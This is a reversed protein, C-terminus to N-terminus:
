YPGFKPCSKMIAQFRGAPFPPHANKSHPLSFRRNPAGCPTPRLRRSSAPLAASGASRGTPTVSRCACRACAPREPAPWRVSRRKRWAARAVRWSTGTMATCPPQPPRNWFSHTVTKALRSTRQASSISARPATPSSTAAPATKIYVCSDLHDIIRTLQATDHRLAASRLEAAALESRMKHMADKAKRRLAAFTFAGFLYLAGLVSGGAILLNQHRTSRVSRKESFIFDDLPRPEPAFGLEVFTRMMTQWREPNQHGLGILRPQILEESAQAEELLGLREPRQARRSPLAAILSVIEAPNALAYEWGKLSAQRFRRVTEANEAAYDQATFLADGYFDVGYDRPHLLALEEASARRYRPVDSLYASMAVVNPQRLDDLSGSTPVLRVIPSAESGKVTIGEHRLLALVQAKAQGIAVSKGILDAPHRIRTRAYSILVTPSHQFVAALM